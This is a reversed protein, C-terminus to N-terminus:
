QYVLMAMEAILEEHFDIKETLEKNQAKLLINEKKLEEVQKDEKTPIKIKSM